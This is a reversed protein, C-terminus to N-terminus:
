STMGIASKPVFPHIRFCLNSIRQNAMLSAQCVTHQAEGNLCCGVFSLWQRQEALDSIQVILQKRLKNSPAISNMENERTRSAHTHTNANACQDLSSTTRVRVSGDPRRQPKTWLSSLGEQGCIFSAHRIFGVCHCAQMTEMENIIGSNESSSLGTM